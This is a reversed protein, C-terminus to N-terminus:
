RSMPTPCFGTQQGISNIEANSRPDGAYNVRNTCRYSTDSPSKPEEAPVRTTAPPVPAPAATRPNPVLGPSTWWVWGDTAAVRSCYVTTGDATVATSGHAECYARLTVPLAKPQRRETTPAPYTSPTTATAETPTTIPPETTASPAPSTVTATTTSPTVTTAVPEPPNDGASSCGAATLGAVVFSVLVITRKM